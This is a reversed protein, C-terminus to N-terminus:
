AALRREPGVSHIPALPNYEPAACIVGRDLNAEVSSRGWSISTIWESPVLVKKGSWWRGIAVVVHCVRWSSDDFIIDKVRGAKGDRAKLRYGTVESTSHLRPANVPEAAMPYVSTSDPPDLLAPNSIGPRQWEYPWDPHRHYYRQLQWSVPPDSDITPSEEVQSRTLSVEVFSAPADRISRVAAAPILVDWGHPWRATLAVLYKVRWYEDDFYIERVRGIFGDAARLRYGKIHEVRRLM